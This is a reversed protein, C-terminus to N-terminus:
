IWVRLGLDGFRQTDVFGFVVLDVQTMQNNPNHTSAIANEMKKKTFLIRDSRHM